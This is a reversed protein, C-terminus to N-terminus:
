FNIRQYEEYIRLVSPIYHATEENLVGEDRNTRLWLEALRPGGNYAALGAEIGYTEVLESLYRCGLRINYVPDFLIEEASSWVLEERQALIMGTSPIIQMLGLAGAPSVAEPNWTHGTEHTITACILEVDLNQYKRSMDYIEGAIRMKVDAPMRSNFRDIIEVIKLVNHQRVSDTKVTAAFTQVDIQMQDVKAAQLQSYKLLHYHFGLAALCFVILWCGHAIKFDAGDQRRQKPTQLESDAPAIFIEPTSDNKGGPAPQSLPLEEEEIIEVEFGGITEGSASTSEPLIILRRNASTRTRSPLLPAEIKRVENQSRAIMLRFKQILKKAGAQLRPALFHFAALAANTANAKLPKLSHLFSLFIKLPHVAGGSHVGASLNKDAPRLRDRPSNNENAVHATTAPSERKTVVEVQLAEMVEPMSLALGFNLDNDGAFHLAAARLTSSELWWAGSDGPACIAQSPEEPAIHVIPGILRPIGDYHHLSYGLIGTILGSTVGSGAGSKIVRMGLQPIVMGTVAGIGVQENLLPHTGTLRAVAADLNANMADRVYGAIAKSEDNEIPDYIPMDSHAPWSGALTHWTSLIMEEGSHRDRVKGGLTGAKRHLLNVIGMGGRLETRSQVHQNPKPSSAKGWHLAYNAQVVDVAFGLRQTEIVRHPHRAAFKKFAGGRLKRRVHVRVALEPELRNRSSSRLRFGLDIHSVNPDNLHLTIATELARRASRWTTSDINTIMAM